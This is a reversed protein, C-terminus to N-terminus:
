REGAFDRLSRGASLRSGTLGAREASPRAERRGGHCEGFPFGIVRAVSAATRVEVKWSRSAILLTSVRAKASSGTKMQITGSGARRVATRGPSNESNASAYWGIRALWTM